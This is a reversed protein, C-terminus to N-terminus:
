RQGLDQPANKGQASGARGDPHLAAHCFVWSGRVWAGGRGVAKSGFSEGEEDGEEDEEDEGEAEAEGDKGM